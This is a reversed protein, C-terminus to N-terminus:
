YRIEHSRSLTILNRNTVAKINSLSGWAFYSQKQTILTGTCWEIMFVYSCHGNLGWGVLEAWHQKTKELL